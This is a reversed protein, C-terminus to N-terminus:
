FSFNYLLKVATQLTAKAALNILENKKLEFSQTSINGQYFIAGPTGPSLAGTNGNYTIPTVNGILIWNYRKSNLPNKFDTPSPSVSVGM